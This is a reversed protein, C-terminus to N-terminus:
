AGRALTELRERPLKVKDATRQIEQWTTHDIPIGDRSRRERIEREPEGPLRVRDFGPAPRSKNLWDLFLRAEREFAHATGLRKPDLVIALMGNLVRQKNSEDYHWTGGGSLAGGLLECALAMGYGKHEGFALMAGFPPVVAYRPDQTPNGEPDILRGFPVKDGKNHAVRLKGQAVASTAFDLLFPPEGPLPVGICCPNTGFRADRGGHPAVRAHSIVNVFHISILGEAVAMEAWHGIRGLHHSNALTMICSGHQKAREIAMQTAERGITQGYGRCGDLALLTGTDVTAKPHQNPLLGGELLADIYRPIMGIGHSDHGLLNAMVLNEAVLRAEDARSGGAAVIAEITRTLPGQKFHTEM